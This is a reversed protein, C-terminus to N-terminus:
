AHIVLGPKRELKLLWSTAYQIRQQCLLVASESGAEYRSCLGSVLHEDFFAKQGLKDAVRFHCRLSLGSFPILLDSRLLSVTGM